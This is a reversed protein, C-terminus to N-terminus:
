AASAEEIEERLIRYGERSLASPNDNLYRRLPSQEDALQAATPRSGTRGSLELMRVRGKEAAMFVNAQVQEITGHHGTVHGALVSLNVGQHALTAGLKKKNNTNDFYQEHNDQIQTALEAAHALGSITHDMLEARELVRGTEPDVMEPLWVQRYMRIKAPDTAFAADEAYLHYATGYSMSAFLEALEDVVREDGAQVAHNLAETGARLGIKQYHVVVFGPPMSRFLERKTEDRTPRPVYNFDRETQVAPFHLQRRPRTM